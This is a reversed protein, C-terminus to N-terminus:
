VKQKKNNIVEILAEKLVKSFNIDYNLADQDLWEPISLTKKVSRSSHKKKYALMDFMIIAVFQNDELQQINSPKSPAPIEEKNEELHSLYLGLADFAMEYANELNDGETFCGDLDPFSVFYGDEEQQFIAPYFVKNM